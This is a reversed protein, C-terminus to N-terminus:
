LYRFGRQFELQEPDDPDHQYHIFRENEQDFRDLGGGTGIWLEGNRDQYLATIEDSSLSFPDDPDHQYHTFQDLKRNYRDLGGDHTGIWILGSDDELLASTWNSILSNSDDPNHQYITFNYGDYKNLGSETGFWM